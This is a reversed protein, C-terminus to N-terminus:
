VPSRIALAVLSRPATRMIQPGAIMYEVLVIKVAIPARNKM